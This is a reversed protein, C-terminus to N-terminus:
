LQMINDGPNVKIIRIGTGHSLIRMGPTLGDFRVPSATTATASANTVGGFGDPGYWAVSVADGSELAVVLSSTEGGDPVLSVDFSRTRSLGSSGMHYVNTVFGASNTTACFDNGWPDYLASKGIPLHIYPGNWGTPVHVAGTVNTVAFCRADDPMVWLESLKRPLRGMDALFGCPTGDKEVSWVADQLEQLQRNATETFRREQIRGIERVALHAAVALVVLVVVMEILTFGRKM